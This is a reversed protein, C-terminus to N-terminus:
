DNLTETYTSLYFQNIPCGIINSIISKLYLIIEAVNLTLNFSNKDYKIKLLLELENKFKADDKLHHIILLSLSHNIAFLNFNNTANFIILNIIHM